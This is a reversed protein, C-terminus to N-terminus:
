QGYRFTEALARLERVLPHKPLGPAYTLIDVAWLIEADPDHIYYTEFYGGATVTDNYWYGSMRLANYGAFRVWTYRVRNREM